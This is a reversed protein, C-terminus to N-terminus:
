CVVLSVAPVQELDALQLPATSNAQQRMEWLLRKSGMFGWPEGALGAFILRRSYSGPDSANGLIEAAALMATLGSLAGDAAQLM